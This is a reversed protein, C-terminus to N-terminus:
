ELIPCIRSRLVGEISRRQMSCRLFSIQFERADKEMMFCVHLSLVLTSRGRQMPRRFASVQSDCPEKELMVGLMARIRIGSALRRQMQRRSRPMEFKHAQQEPATRINTHFLSPRLRNWSADARPHSSTICNGHSCPPWSYAASHSL